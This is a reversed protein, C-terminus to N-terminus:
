KSAHDANVIVIAAGDWVNEGADEPPKTRLAVIGVSKHNLHFHAELYRRVLEARKRSSVFQQSPSGKVAYGEVIIAHEPLTDVVPELSGDIQQRGASSLQETGDVGAEFASNARLWRRMSINRQLSRASLYDDSTLQELNYYGRKNFYARVFFNHKLAETDDALNATSRNLNTLTSRINSGGNEGFGDEGLAEKLTINLQESIQQTNKLTAEVKALLERSQFDTLIGNVQNSAKELSATTEKVNALTTQLQQRTQEDKLLLGAPGKGNQLDTVLLSLQSTIQTGDSAIKRIQPRLSVIMQDAHDVTRTITDLTLDVRGRIDKLSGSVEDLLGPGRELIASLDFPEKSPLTTGPGLEQAQDSGKRISVIKDGVVGETEISAISDRRLMGRVSEELQLELRFKGAPSKPIVIEKVQGANLGSVRVSAGNVLGGLNSFETYLEVHRGFAKQRNGVLFLISTFLVFGLVLFLGVAWVRVRM